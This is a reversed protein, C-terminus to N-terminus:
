RLFKKQFETIADKFNQLDVILQKKQADKYGTGYELREHNGSSKLGQHISNITNIQMIIALLAQKLELFDDRQTNSIIISQFIEIPFLTDRISYSNVQINKTYEGCWDKYRSLTDKLLSIAFKYQYSDFSDIKKNIKYTFYLAFMGAFMSIIAIITNLIEIM